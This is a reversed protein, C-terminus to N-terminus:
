GRKSRKYAAVKTYDGTKAAESRLRELTADISGSPRSNGTIRGEPVTSPKKTSVKLQGELRAVAFAFRVPDKIAALEKAKAENKGLAYVVLAPDTAGHVIIGQQTTNLLDLVVAEVDDFDQAKFSAKAEQYSSVRAKWENEAKEAEVKANAAREDAKRKRDYWSTLSQEYKETDYDCTQLTPKEGLEPEASPTVELLKRKTEKLERELERNRQRVKKVWAPAPQEEEATEAAPEDGITVVVEEEPEVVTTTEATTTEEGVKTTEEAQDQVKLGDVIM